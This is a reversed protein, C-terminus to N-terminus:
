ILIWVEDTIVDKRPSLACYYYCGQLQPISSNSVTVFVCTSLCGVQINECQCLYFSLLSFFQQLVSIAIVILLWTLVLAWEDMQRVWGRTCWQRQKRGATWGKWLHTVMWADSCHWIFWGAGRLVPVSDKFAFLVSTQKNKWQLSSVAVILIYSNPVSMIKVFLEEEKVDSPVM